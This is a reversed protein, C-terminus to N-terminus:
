FKHMYGKNKILIEKGKEDIITNEKNGSIIKGIKTIKVRLAKCTKFIIRSKDPRATFLVQYDDGNSVLEIKKYNYNKILNLLNQNM